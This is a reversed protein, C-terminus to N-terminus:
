VRSHFNMWVWYTLHMACSTTIMDYMTIVVSTIYRLMQSYSAYHPLFDLLNNEALFADYERNIAFWEGLPNLNRNKVMRLWSMYLRPLFPDKLEIFEDKERNFKEEEVSPLTNTGTNNNVTEVLSAPINTQWSTDLAAELIDKPRNLGETARIAKEAVDNIVGLLKSYQDKSLSQLNVRKM